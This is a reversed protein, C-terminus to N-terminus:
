GKFKMWSPSAAAMESKSYGAIYGADSPRNTGFKANGHLTAMSYSESSNYGKFEIWSPTAAAMNFKSFGAINGADSPRNTCWIECTWAIYGYIHDPHSIAKSNSGLHRRLRWRPNVLVQLIDPMTQGIQVM